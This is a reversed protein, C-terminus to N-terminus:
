REQAEGGGRAARGGTAEGGRDSAGSVTRPRARVGVPATACDVAAPSNGASGGADAKATRQNGDRFEERYWEELVRVGDVCIARFGFNRMLAIWEAQPPTLKGGPRKVEIEVYGLTPHVAYYDCEGRKGIVQPRRDVTYFIGVHKRRLLWGRATLFLMVNCEVDNETTEAVFSRM